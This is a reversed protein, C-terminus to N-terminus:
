SARNLGVSWSVEMKYDAQKDTSAAAGSLTEKKRKKLIRVHNVYTEPVM